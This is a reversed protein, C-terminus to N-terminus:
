SRALQRRSPSTEGTAVPRQESLYWELIEEESMERFDPFGLFIAVFLLSVSDPFLFKDVLVDEDPYVENGEDDVFKSRIKDIERNPLHVRVDAGRVPSRVLGVM